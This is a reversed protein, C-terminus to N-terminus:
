VAPKNVHFNIEMSGAVPSGGSSGKAPKRGGLRFGGCPSPLTKKVTLGLCARGVPVSARLTAEMTKSLLGAMCVAVHSFVSSVAVGVLWTWASAGVCLEALKLTWHDPVSAPEPRFSNVM